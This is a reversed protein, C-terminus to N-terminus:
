YFGLPRIINTKQTTIEMEDAIWRQRLGCRRQSQAKTFEFLHSLSPSTSLHPVMVAWRGWAPAATEAGVCLQKTKVGM